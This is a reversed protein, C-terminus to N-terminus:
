KVIGEIIAQGLTLQFGCAGKHGGGGHAVAIVSHDVDECGERNYLSVKVDGDGEIRYCLLGNCDEPVTENPFWSSNRAHVSALAWYRNGGLEVYYGRSKCVQSAFVKQWKMAAQGDQCYRGVRMSELDGTPAGGARSFKLFEDALGEPTWDPESYLGFQFQDARPDRKDWVDYEGALRLALPEHVRRNVYDDKDPLSGPIPIKGDSYDTAYEAAFWQWALRCAAVGDIRYGPPSYDPQKVSRMFAEVKDISSKHHDIWVRFMDGAVAAPDDYPLDVIYFQQGCPVNVAPDGFDWGHLVVEHGAKTLWHYCVAGSFLGDFDARHYIVHVKM